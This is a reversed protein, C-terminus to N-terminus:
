SLISLLHDAAALGSLSAGEVKPGAFADGAFVLSGVALFPDAWPRRPTAFRWKKYESVICNSSGFYTRAHEMLLATGDEHSDDWHEASWQPNAHCTLAPVDSIGKMANDGIWSFVDDPDQLGGPLELGSPGDLVALLGITRDYDAMLLDRPLEIGAEVTLSYSQAVPSTVVVADATLRTGDDITVTYPGNGTSESRSAEEISFVLTSTRVDLGKAIHKALSTMGGPVVYRPHGDDGDFGRCWERVVGEHIWGQVLESFRDSRVTFFQAGHDLTAQRGDPTAIRRTALRGGVGRGKDLVAVRHGAQTLRDAALLGSIGAGVVVVNSGTAFAM